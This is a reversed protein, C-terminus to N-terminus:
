FHSFFYLFLLQEEWEEIKAERKLGLENLTVDLSVFAITLKVM